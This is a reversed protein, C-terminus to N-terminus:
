ALGLKRIIAKAYGPVTPDALAAALADRDPDPDPPPVPQLLTGPGPDANVTVARMTRGFARGIDAEHSTPPVSIDDSIFLVDTREGTDVDEFYRYQM